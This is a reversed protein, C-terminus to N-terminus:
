GLGGLLPAVSMGTTGFTRHEPKFLQNRELIAINHSM